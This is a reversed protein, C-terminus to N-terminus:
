EGHFTLVKEPAVERLTRAAGAGLVRPAGNGKEAKVIAAQGAELKRAVDDSVQLADIRKGVAFYYRRNGSWNSLAGERYAAEIVSQRKQKGEHRKARETEVARNEAGRQRDQESGAQQQRKVEDQAREKDRQKAKHGETKTRVREKHSSQKAQKETILGAQLMQEKLSM